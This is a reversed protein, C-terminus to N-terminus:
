GVETNAGIIPNSSNDLPVYTANSNGIYLGDDIRQWAADKTEHRRDYYGEQCSCHFGPVLDTCVAGSGCSNRGPACENDDVCATTRGTVPDIDEAAFYEDCTCAYTGNKNTCQSNIVCDFDNANLCENIDECTHGTVTNGFSDIPHGRTKRNRM